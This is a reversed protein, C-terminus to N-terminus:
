LRGSAHLCRPSFAGSDRQDGRSKGAPQPRERPGSRIADLLDQERFAQHPIRHGRGEDGPVSMAIDGHGTIFIIPLQVSASALERQFDLGGQGPLRVDLM